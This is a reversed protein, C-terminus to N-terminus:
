ESLLERSLLLIASIDKAEPPTDSELADLLVDIASQALSARDSLPMNAINKM